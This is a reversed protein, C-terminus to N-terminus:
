PDLIPIKCPYLSQLPLYTINKRVVPISFWSEALIFTANKKERGAETNYGVIL